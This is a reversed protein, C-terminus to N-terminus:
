RPRSSRSSTRRRQPRVRGRSSARRPTAESGPIASTTELCSTRNRPVRCPYQDMTLDEPEPPAELARALIKNLTEQSLSADNEPSM